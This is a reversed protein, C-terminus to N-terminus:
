GLYGWKQQGSTVGGPSWYREFEKPVAGPDFSQWTWDISAGYINTAGAGRRYARLVWSWPSDNQYNSNLLSRVRVLLAAGAHICKGRDTRDALTFSTGDLNKYGILALDAVAVTTMMEVGQHPYDGLNKGMASENHLMHAILWAPIGQRTAAAKIIPELDDPCDAPKAKAAAPPTYTANIAPPAGLDGINEGAYSKRELDPVLSAVVTPYTVASAGRLVRDVEVTHGLSFSSGSIQINFSTSTVYGTMAVSDAIGASRDVLVQGPRVPMFPSQISRRFLLPLPIEQAAYHHLIKQSFATWDVIARPDDPNGGAVLPAVSTAL